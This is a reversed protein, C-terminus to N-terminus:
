QCASHMAACPVYEFHSTGHLTCLSCCHRAAGPGANEQRIVKFEPVKVGECRGLNGEAEGRATELVRSESEWRHFAAWAAEETGDGSGDDVVIIEGAPL